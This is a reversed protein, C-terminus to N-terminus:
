IFFACRSFLLNHIGWFLSTIKQLLTMVTKDTKLKLEQLQTKLSIYQDNISRHIYKLAADSKVSLSGLWVDIVSESGDELDDPPTAIYTLTKM